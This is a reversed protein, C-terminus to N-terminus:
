ESRDDDKGDDNPVAQGDSADLGPKINPPPTEDEPQSTVAPSEPIDTAEPGDGPNEPSSM